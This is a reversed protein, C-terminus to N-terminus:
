EFFEKQKSKRIDLEKQKANNDKEVFQHHFNMYKKEDQKQDRLQKEYRALAENHVQAKM